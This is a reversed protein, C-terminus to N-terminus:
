QMIRARASKSIPHSTRKGPDKKLGENAWRKSTRRPIPELTVVVEALKRRGERRGFSARSLVITVLTALAAM